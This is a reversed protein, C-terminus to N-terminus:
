STLQASSLKAIISCQRPICTFDINAFINQSLWPSCQYTGRNVAIVKSCKVDTYQLTCKRIRVANSNLVSSFTKKMYTLELLYSQLFAWLTHLLIRGILDNHHGNNYLVSGEWNPLKLDLNDRLQNLPFYCFLIM